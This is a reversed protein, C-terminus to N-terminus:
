ILDANDGELFESSVCRSLSLTWFCLVGCGVFGACVSWFSTNYIRRRLLVFHVVPLFFSARPVCLLMLLCSTTYLMDLSSPVCLLFILQGFRNESSIPISFGKISAIQQM